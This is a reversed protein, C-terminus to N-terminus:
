FDEDNGLLKAIEEYKELYKIGKDTTRYVKRGNEDYIKLLEMKTLFSLYENLQAFSLNAGYMIKTKLSGEKALTLIVAIIYLRNRRKQGSELECTERLQKRSNLDIILSFDPRM